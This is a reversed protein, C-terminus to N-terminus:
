IRLRSPKLLFSGLYQRQLSVDELMAMCHTAGVYTTANEGRVVHGQVVPGAAAKEPKEQPKPVAEADMMERVMGELRKLRASMGKAPRKKDPKPAYACLEARGKKICQSCPQERDCKLKSNRCPACSLLIRSRKQQAQQEGSSVGSPSSEM